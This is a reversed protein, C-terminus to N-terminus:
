DLSRVMLVQHFRQPLFGLRRLAAGGLDERQLAAVSVAAGPRTARMAAVLVEGDAQQASDDILSHVQLAGEGTDSWVVQATGRQWFRLPRATAALSPRTVQLPLEGLREEAADLWAFGTARDVERPPTGVPALIEAGEALDYGFLEHRAAFERSRYLRQARENAVFCELEVALQAAAAARAVFDDLLVPAAGCGRAEPTAGMAALRWRRGQPRPAVLGFALVAGDRVAVRSAALDVVQRAVTAPWREFPLAVPGTVYDSFAAVFAAHLDNPAVTDASVLAFDPM